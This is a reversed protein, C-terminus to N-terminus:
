SQSEILATAARNLDRIDAKGVLAYAVEGIQWYAVNFDAIQALTVPVVDFKGPRVAFLSASGFAQARIELEVSPGFTSPFIQVDAVEWAQPLNPMVVATAARIDARSYAPEKHQSHLAARVLTTRHAMVADSVYAPPLPSAVVHSIALPGLEAHAVWGAAVLIAVAAIKQARRFIRAWAIGRELRRAADTTAPRGTRPVNALALRLEDRIRLDAMVRAAKEPHHCICAEVEIRRVLPLEDDVYAYLDVDAIPEIRANM